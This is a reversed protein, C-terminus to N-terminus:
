GKARLLLVPVSAARVVRGAVSGLVWRGVGSRGHTSMVIMSDPFREAFDIIEGAADGRSVEATAMVGMGRLKEVMSKLYAGAADEIEKDIRPDYSQPELGAYLAGYPPVVQQLSIPLKLGKALAVAAPIAAEALDSGDLPLVLASTLRQAQPAGEAKPRVLLLPLSTTHLVKDATNGFAWRGVGSRGHTTMAIIDFGSEEAIRTIEASAPGPVMKSDVKAVGFAKVSSVLGNLYGQTVRGPESERAPTNSGSAHFVTVEAGLAAAIQSAQPIIAESHRSGDVPILVKKFM